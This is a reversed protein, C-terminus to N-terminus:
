KVKTIITDTVIYTSDKYIGKYSIEYKGQRVDELIQKETYFSGAVTGTVLSVLLILVGLSSLLDNDAVYTTLAGIMLIIVAVVILIIEM